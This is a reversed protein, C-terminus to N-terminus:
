EGLYKRLAMIMLWTIYGSLLVVGALIIFGVLASVKM